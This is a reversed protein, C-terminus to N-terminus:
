FNYIEYKKVNMWKLNGWTEGKEVGDELGDDIFGFPMLNAEAEMLQEEFMKERLDSDTVETFYKQNVMWGFLILGMVLDDHYGEDAEYSSGKAVFTTLETITDLDYILLKDGEILDKLASCGKRKVEKTTRIGLQSQKGFGSSM